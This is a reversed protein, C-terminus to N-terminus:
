SVHGSRAPWGLDFLQQQGQPLPPQLQYLYLGNGAYHKALRHAGFRSKKLHRLQASISSEPWRADPFRRSLEASIEPLTLWQGDWAKKLMFDRLRTRQTDLRAGDREEVFDPGFTSRKM